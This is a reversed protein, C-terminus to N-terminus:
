KGQALLSARLLIGARLASAPNSLLLQWADGRFFEPKGKVLGREWRKVVEMTKLLTSRVADLDSKSLHRSKIIDGTLVAFYKKNNM